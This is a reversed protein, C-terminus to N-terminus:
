IVRIRFSKSECSDLNSNLLTRILKIVVMSVSLLNHTTYGRILNRVSASRKIQKLNVLRELGATMTTWNHWVARLSIFFSIVVSFLADTKANEM